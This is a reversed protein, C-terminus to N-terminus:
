LWSNNCTRSEWCLTNCPRLIYATSWTPLHTATHLHHHSPLFPLPPPLPLTHTHTFPPFTPLHPPPPTAGTHPWRAFGDPLYHLCCTRATCACRPASPLTRVPSGALTGSGFPLPLCGLIFAINPHLTLTTHIPDQTCTTHTPLTFTYIHCMSGPVLLYLDQLLTRHHPPPFHTRTDQRPVPHDTHCCPLRHGSPGLNRSHPHPLYPLYSCHPTHPIHPPVLDVTQPRHPGLPHPPTTSSDWPRPHWSPGVFGFAWGLDWTRTGFTPGGLHTPIYHSGVPLTNYPPLNPSCGLSTTTRRACPPTPQLTPSHVNCLDVTHRTTATL